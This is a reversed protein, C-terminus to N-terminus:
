GEPNHEIANQLNEQVREERIMEQIRQQNEVNFPDANLEAIMQQRRMQDDREQSQLQGWVQAFREPDDLAAALEPRRNELEQRLQPNGLIQLRQTERDRGERVQQYSMQGASQSAPGGRSMTTERIHVSLMDNDAIQLQEM